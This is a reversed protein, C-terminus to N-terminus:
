SADNPHETVLQHLDVVSDYLVVRDHECVQLFVLFGNPTALYETLYLKVGM